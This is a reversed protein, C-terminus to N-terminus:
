SLHQWQIRRRGLVKGDPLLTATHFDRATALSGTSSWRGAPRIM